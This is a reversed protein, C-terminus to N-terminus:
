QLKIITLGPLRDPYQSQAQLRAGRARARQRLPRRARPGATRLAHLRHAGARRRRLGNAYGPARHLGRRHVRTGRHGTRLYTADIAHLESKGRQGRANMTRVGAKFEEKLAALCLCEIMDSIAIAAMASEPSNANSNYGDAPAIPIVKGIGTELHRPPGDGPDTLCCGIRLMTIDLPADPDEREHRTAIFRVLQEMQWKSLAYAWPYGVYPHTDSMPLQQPPFGRGTGVTSISSAVVFRICAPDGGPSALADFLRRTGQVNVELCDGLEGWGAVAALHVCCDIECIDFDNLKELGAGTALDARVSMVGSIETDRRALGVVTVGRAVLAECLKGGLWGTSGTVLITKNAM